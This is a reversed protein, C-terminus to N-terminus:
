ENDSADRDGAGDRSLRRRKCVPYSVLESATAHPGLVYLCGLSPGGPPGLAASVSPSLPPDAPSELVVLPRAATVDDGRDPAHSVSV